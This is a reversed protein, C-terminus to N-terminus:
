ARQTAVNGGANSGEVGAKTPLDVDFFHDRSGAGRM